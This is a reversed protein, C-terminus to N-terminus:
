PTRNLASHEHLCSVPCVYRSCQWVAIPKKSCVATFSQIFAKQRKDRLPRCVHTLLTIFHHYNHAYPRLRLITRFNLHEGNTGIASFRGSRIEQVNEREIAIWGRIASAECNWADTIKWFKRKMQQLISNTWHPLFGQSRRRGHTTGSKPDDYKCKRRAANEEISFDFHPSIRALASAKRILRLRSPRRDGRLWM